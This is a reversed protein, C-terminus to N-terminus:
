YILEMSLLVFVLTLHTILWIRQYLPRRPFSVKENFPDFILAIGLNSMAVGYDQNVVLFYSGLLVFLTYFLKNVPKTINKTTKRTSEM